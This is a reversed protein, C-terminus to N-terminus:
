CQTRPSDINQREQRLEVDDEPHFRLEESLDEERRRRQELWGRKRFFGSM